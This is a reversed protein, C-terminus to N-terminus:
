TRRDLLMLTLLAPLYVLSVLFLRRARSATPARTAEIAALLFGASLLLAGFFYAPGALGLPTPTLSVAPLAAEYPMANYSLRRTRQM